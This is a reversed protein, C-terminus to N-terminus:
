ETQLGKEKLEKLKSQLASCVIRSVNSRTFIAMMKASEYLHRPIYVTTKVCRFRDDDM